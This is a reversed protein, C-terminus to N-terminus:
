ECVVYLKCNPCSVGGTCFQEREVKARVVFPMFDEHEGVRVHAAYLGSKWSDPVTLTFDVDWGADYVDDDHFHIAGYENQANAWNMEQGSWNHGKMGRTPMNVLEGNLRNPSTDYAITEKMGIGFDWCAIVNKQLTDPLKEALLQEM